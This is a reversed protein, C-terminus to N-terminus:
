SPTVHEGSPVGVVAWSGDTEGSLAPPIWIAKWEVPPQIPDPPKTGEDPPIIPGGGVSPPGGIDGGPGLHIPPTPRPDTPGWIGPPQGGGGPPQSPPIVPGGGVQLGTITAEGFLVVNQQTRNYKDYLVGSITIEVAAM